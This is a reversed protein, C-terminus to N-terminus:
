NTQKLGYIKPRFWTKKNARMLWCIKNQGKHLAVHFCSPLLSKKDPDYRIIGDSQLIIGNFLVHNDLQEVGNITDLLLFPSAHAPEIEFRYIGTREATVEAEIWFLCEEMSADKIFEGVHFSKSSPVPNLDHIEKKQSIDAYGMLLSEGDTSVQSREESFRQNSILAYPGKLKIKQPLGDDFNFEVCDIGVVYDKSKKNKGRVIIKFRPEDAAHLFIKEESRYEKPKVQSSYLDLSQFVGTNNIQVEIEPSEPSQTLTCAFKYWGSFRIPPSLIMISSGLGAAEFRLQCNNSWDPGHPLMDQPEYIGGSVMVAQEEAEWQRYFIKQRSENNDQSALVNDKEIEIVPQKLPVSRFHRGKPPYPWPFPEHPEEQYWYVMTSYDSHRMNAHGHEFTMLIGNDFPIPSALFLRLMFKKNHLDEVGGALPWNITQAQWAEDFFGENGSGSLLPPYDDSDVFVMADSDPAPSRMMAIGIVHGKGTTNLAVYNQDPSCLPEEFDESFEVTEVDTENNRNWWAHFTRLPSPLAAKKQLYFVMEVKVAETEKGNELTFRAHEKFPMPLYCYRQQATVTGLGISNVRGGFFDFVPAAISPEFENEWYGRLMLERGTENRNKGSWRMQIGQIVAPGDFTAFEVTEGAPISASFNILERSSGIANPPQSRTRFKKAVTSFNKQEASTIPLELSTVKADSPFNLYDIQYFCPTTISIKCFKEYPIPVYCWHAGQIDFTGRVFPKMFPKQKSLFLNRFPMQVIPTGGDDVHIRVIGEPDASWIRVVAGPGEMEAIVYWKGEKRIYGSGDNNGGSRDFSSWMGMKYNPAEWLSDLDVTQRLLSSFTVPKNQGTSYPPFLLIFLYLIVVNIYILAFKNFLLFFNEGKKNGDRHKM